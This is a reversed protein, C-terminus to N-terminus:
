IYQTIEAIKGDKYYVRPVRMSINCVTEYNITNDLNAIELATICEGSDTGIVTVTDGVACDVDTIDIVTQDMCVKGVIKCSKGNVLMRGKSSLSRPYGDGYGINVTALRMPKKAVFSRGYSVSTGIEINRIQSIVSKLSLIPTFNNPKGYGEYLGYLAIGARVFNFYACPKNIIAGSNACHIYKVTIGKQKLLSVLENICNIQFDTYGDSDQEDSVAFHTFIGEVEVCDLKSIDYILNATNIRDSQTICDFGVRNMGTNLKIHIKVTKNTKRAYNAIRKAFDFDFVTLTIDNQLASEFTDDLCGGLLLIDGTVGLKRLHVAECMTAVAFRKVGEKQLQLVIAKDGHGYANAKVVACIDSTGILSKINNLNSVLKDLSIEAWCRRLFDM